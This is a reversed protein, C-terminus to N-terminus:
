LNRTEITVTIDSQPIGCEETLYFTEEEILDELATSIHLKGRVKLHYIDYTKNKM